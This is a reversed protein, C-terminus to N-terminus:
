ERKLEISNESITYSLQLPITIAKLALDMNKHILTGTFLRSTNVNNTNVTKSYYNEFEAIVYKLPVNKFSSEGSLWQPKTTTMKENAIQKGDRITFTDGPNLTVVQNKYDVAVLGEYCIVQYYNNRQKVNFQTGLVSVTGDKTIVDFKQGKAVKFFAEGKLFISRNNNWDDSDYMVSSNANVEVESADPLTILTQEAITTNISTVDSLNFYNIGFGIIIAAAISVAIKLWKNTTKHRLAEIRPQLSKYNSSASFDPAKFNMLANNLQTLENYDELGEFAKQEAKTLNHNLWKHILEERSM